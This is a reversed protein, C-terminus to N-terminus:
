FGYILFHLREFRGAPLPILPASNDMPILQFCGSASKDGQKSRSPAAADVAGFGDNHAAKM